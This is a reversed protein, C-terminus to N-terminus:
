GHLVVRVVDPRRRCRGMDNPCRCPPLGYRTGFTTYVGVGDSICGWAAGEPAKAHRLEGPSELREDVVGSAAETPGRPDEAASGARGCQSNIGPSWMSPFELFDPRATSLIRQVDAAGALRPRPTAIISFALTGTRRRPCDHAEASAAHRHLVTSHTLASSGNNFQPRFGVTGRPPDTAIGSVATEQSWVVLRREVVIIPAGNLPWRPYERGARADGAAVQTHGAAEVHSLRDDPFDRMGAPEEHANEPLLRRASTSAHHSWACRLGREAPACREPLHSDARWRPEILGPHM